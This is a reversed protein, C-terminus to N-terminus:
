GACYGKAALIRAVSEDVNERSLTGSDVAAQLTNLVTDLQETSTWLAVDAGAQFATLVAKPLPYRDSIAKMAGLDDTITVGRFGYDTRLLTYAAPSLSAPLGGTLGPVALHGIMVEAKGGNLVSSYPKLDTGRLSSLAPTSVLGEHSDGSARGHGPFHKFVPLVGADRLGDAFAGAYKIVTAPDASFSRDGIATGAGQSSTDLVPAM